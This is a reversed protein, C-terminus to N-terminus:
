GVINFPQRRPSSFIRDSDILITTRLVRVMKVMKYRREMELLEWYIMTRVM